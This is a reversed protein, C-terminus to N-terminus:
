VEDYAMRRIEWLVDPVAPGTSADHAIDGIRHLVERLRDADNSPPQGVYLAVTAIDPNHHPESFLMTIRGNPLQWGYAVPEAAVEGRPEAAVAMAAKYGAEFAAEVWHETTKIAGTEVAETRWLELEFDARSAAEM